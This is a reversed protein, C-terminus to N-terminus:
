NNRDNYKVTVTVNGTNVDTYSLTNSVGGQLTLWRDRITNTHVHEKLNSNDELLYVKRNECDVVVSDNVDLTLNRIHIEDGTTDNALTLEKIEYQTGQEASMAVTPVNAGAFFVELSSIEGLVHNQTTAHGPVGGGIHFSIYESTTSLARKSANITFNTWTAASAPVAEDWEQIWNEGDTSNRLEMHLPWVSTSNTYRKGTVTVDTIGTKSHFMWELSGGTPLYKNRRYVARIQLGMVSSPDAWQATDAPDATATYHTVAAAARAGSHQTPRRINVEPEWEGGRAANRASFNSYEWRDNESTLLFIPKQKDADPTNPSNTVGTDGYEMWIRHDVKVISDGASHAAISTGFRTRKVNKLQYTNLDKGKYRFAESNIYVQGQDDMHELMQFNAPTIKFDITSIAGAGAIATKLTGTRGRKLFLNIWIETSTTNIDQLWRDRLKGDVYIRIDDGNALMKSATVLADTDLGNSAESNALNIPGNFIKDSQPNVVKIFRRYLVATGGRAGTPKIEIYPLTPINGGATIAKTDGSATINFASATTQTVAKWRPDPIALTVKAFYYEDDWDFDIVIGDLQWQKDSDDSDKAIFTKLTGSYDTADFIAAMDDRKSRPSAKNAPALKVQLQMMRMKGSVNALLPFHGIRTVLRPTLKPDSLANDSGSSFETIFTTGNNITSNGNFSFPSLKM